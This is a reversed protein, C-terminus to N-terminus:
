CSLGRDPNVLMISIHEDVFVCECPAANTTKHSSKLTHLDVSDILFPPFTENTRREAAM